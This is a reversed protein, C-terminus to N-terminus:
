MSLNCKRSEASAYKTLGVFNVSENSTTRDETQQERPWTLHVVLEISYWVMSYQVM